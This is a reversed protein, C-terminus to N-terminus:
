ATKRLIHWNTDNRIETLAKDYAILENVYFRLRGAKRVHPPGLHRKLRTRLGSGELGLFQAAGELDLYERGENDTLILERWNNM